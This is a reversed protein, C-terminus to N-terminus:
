IRNILKNNSQKKCEFMHAWNYDTPYIRALELDIDSAFSRPIPLLKKPLVKYIYDYHESPLPHGDLILVNNVTM